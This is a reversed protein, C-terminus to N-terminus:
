TIAAAIIQRRRQPYKEEMAKDELVNKWDTKPRRIHGTTTRSSGDDDTGNGDGNETSTSDSDSNPKLEERLTKFEESLFWNFEDRLRILFALRTIGDSCLVPIKEM